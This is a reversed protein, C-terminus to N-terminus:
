ELIYLVFLFMQSKGRFYRLNVVRFPSPIFSLSWKECLINFYSVLASENNHVARTVIPNIRKVIRLKPVYPYKKPRLLFLITIILATAM